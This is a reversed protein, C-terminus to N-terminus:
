RSHADKKGLVLVLSREGNRLEISRPDVRTVAWGDIADGQQLSRPKSPNDAIILVRKEQESYVIGVLRVRPPPTEVPPPPPPPPEYHAVPKPPGRRTPVFLPRERTAEFDTLAPEAIAPRIIKSGSGAVASGILLLFLGRHTKSRM